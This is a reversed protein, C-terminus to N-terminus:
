AAPVLGLRALAASLIEALLDDLPRGLLEAIIGFSGDPAFTPLPNMELFHPRGRGDLRFDARAFDRCELADFARRALATLEAELAGDLEGPTVHRWGGPPAPHREVAHAGIRTSAEL